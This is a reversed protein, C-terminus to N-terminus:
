NVKRMSPNRSIGGIAKDISERMDALRDLYEASEVVREPRATDVVKRAAINQVIKVRHAAIHRITRLPSPQVPIRTDIKADTTPPTTKGSERDLKQAIEQDQASELTRVETQVRDLMASQVKREQEDDVAAIRAKLNTARLEASLLRASYEQQVSQVHERSQGIRVTDEPVADETPEERAFKLLDSSGLAASSAEWESLRDASVSQLAKFAAPDGDSPVSISTVTWGDGSRMLIERERRLDASFTRDLSSRDTHLLEPATIKPTPASALDRKACGSCAAVVTLSLLAFRLGPSRM